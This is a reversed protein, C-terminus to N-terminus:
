NIFDASQITSVNSIATKTTDSLDYGIRHPYFPYLSNPLYSIKM